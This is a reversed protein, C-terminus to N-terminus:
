EGKHLRPWSLVYRFVDKEVEKGTWHVKITEDHQGPGVGHSVTRRRQREHEFVQAFWHHKTSRLYTRTLITHKTTQTSPLLISVKFQTYFWGLGTRVM